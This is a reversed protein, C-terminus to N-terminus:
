NLLPHPLIDSTIILVNFFCSIISVVAVIFHMFSRVFSRVFVLAANTSLKWAESFSVFQQEKMFKTGNFNAWKRWPSIIHSLLM